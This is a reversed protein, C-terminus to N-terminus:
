GDHYTTARMKWPRRRARRLGWRRSEEVLWWGLLRVSFVIGLGLDARGGLDFNGGIGRTLALHRHELRELAHELQRQDVVSQRAAQALRGLREVAALRVHAHEVLGALLLGVLLEDNGQAGLVLDREDLDGIALLEALPSTKTRKSESYGKPRTELPRFTALIDYCALDVTLTVGTLDDVARANDDLVPTLLRLLAADEEVVELGLLLRTESYAFRALAPESERRAREEVQTDRARNEAV